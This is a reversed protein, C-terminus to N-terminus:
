DRTEIVVHVLAVGASQSLETESKEWFYIRIDYWVISLVPVCSDGGLIDTM